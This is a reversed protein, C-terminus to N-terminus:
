RESLIRSSVWNTRRASPITQDVDGQALADSTQSLTIIPNSIRLALYYAFAAGAVIILITIIIMNLIMANVPALAETQDEMYVLYWGPKEKVAYRSGVVDTGIFNTWYDLKGVIINDIKAKKNLFAGDVGQVDSIILGAQNEDILMGKATSELGSPDLVINELYSMPGSAIVVGIPKNENGLVQTSFGITAGKTDNFYPASVYNGKLGETFLPNDKWNKGINGPINSSIVEGNQNVVVINTFADSTRKNAITLAGNNSTRLEQNVGSKAETELLNIVSPRTAFLNVNDLGAQLILTMQGQSNGGVADFRGKLENEVTSRANMTSVVALVVCSIVVLAVMSVILKTKISKFEIKRM